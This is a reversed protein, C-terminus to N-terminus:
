YKGLVIGSQQKRRTRKHRRKQKQYKPAMKDAGRKTFRDGQGTTPDFPLSRDHAPILQFNGGVLVKRRRAM